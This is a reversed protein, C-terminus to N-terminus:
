LQTGNGKGPSRGSGPILGAGGVNAPLNKVPSGDLSIVPGWHLSFAQHVPFALGLIFTNPAPTRPLDNSCSPPVRIIPNTGMNM